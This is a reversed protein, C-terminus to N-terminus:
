CWRNSDLRGRWPSHGAVRGGHGSRKRRCMRDDGLWNDRHGAIASPGVRRCGAFLDRGQKRNRAGDGAHGTRVEWGAAFTAVLTRVRVLAVCRDNISWRQLSCRRQVYFRGLPDLARRWRRHRGFRLWSRGRRGVYVRFRCISGCWGRGGSLTGSRGDLSNLRGCLLAAADDGRLRRSRM